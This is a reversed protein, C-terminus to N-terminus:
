GEFSSSGAGRELCSSESLTLSFCAGLTVCNLWRGLSIFLCATRGHSSTGGAELVTLVNLRLGLSTMTPVPVSSKGLSLGASVQGPSRGEPYAEHSPLTAGLGRGDSSYM